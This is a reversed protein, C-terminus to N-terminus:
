ACNETDIQAEALPPNGISLMQEVWASRAADSAENWNPWYLDLQRFLWGRWDDVLGSLAARQEDTLWRLAATDTSRIDV